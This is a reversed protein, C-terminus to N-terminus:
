IEDVVKERGDEQGGLLAWLKDRVVEEDVDKEQEKKKEEEEKEGELLEKEEEGALGEGGVSGMRGKLSDPKELYQSVSFEEIGFYSDVNFMNAIKVLRDLLPTEKSTETTEKPTEKPTETNRPPSLHILKIEKRVEPGATTTSEAPSTTDDASKGPPMINSAAEAAAAAAAASTLDGMEVSVSVPSIGEVSVSVPLSMGRMGTMSRMGNVLDLLDLLVGGDGSVPPLTELIHPPLLIRLASPPLIDVALQKSDEWFIQLHPKTYYGITTFLCFLLSQLLIIRILM